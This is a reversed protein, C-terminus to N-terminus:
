NQLGKIYKAVDKDVEEGWSPLVARNEEFCQLSINCLQACYDIAGQLYLGQKVMLVAVLNHTGHRAQEINYSFIDNSLSIFDTAAEELVMIVPHSVVEDPLNIQCAFEIFAFCSKCGSMDCRFKIYSEVDNIHGKIHIEAEKAVTIFWIDMAHIFRETCGFSGTEKFHSFHSKCMKGSPREMQFNVPDRYASICCDHMEWADNVDIKLWDDLKWSLGLFDACVQLHFADADPYCSSAFYGPRLITTYKTVDPEVLHGEIPYPCNSLFDPLIFETPKTDSCTITCTTTSAM